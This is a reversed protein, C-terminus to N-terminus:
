PIGWAALAAKGAPRKAKTHDTYFWRQAIFRVREKPDAETPEAGPSRQWIPEYFRNFLVERGDACTWAGYPLNNMVDFEGRSTLCRQGGRSIRDPSRSPSVTRFTM